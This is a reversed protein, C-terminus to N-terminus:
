EVGGGISYLLHRGRRADHPVTSCQPSAFTPPIRLMEVDLKARTFVTTHTLINWFPKNTPYFSVLFYFSEKELGHGFLSLCDEIGSGVPKGKNVGNM